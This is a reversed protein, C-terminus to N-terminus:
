DKKHKKHKKYTDYVDSYGKSSISKWPSKFNMTNKSNKSCNKKINRKKIHTAKIPNIKNKNKTNIKILIFVLCSIALILSIIIFVIGITIFNGNSSYLLNYM